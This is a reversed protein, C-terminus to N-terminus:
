GYIGLENEIRMEKFDRLRNALQQLEFDDADLQFEVRHLGKNCRFFLGLGLENAAKVIDKAIVKKKTAMKVIM